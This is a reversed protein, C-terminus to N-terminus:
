FAKQDGFMIQIPMPIAAGIFNDIPSHMLNLWNKSFLNQELIDETDIFTLQSMLFLLAHIPRHYLQNKIVSQIRKGFKSFMILGLDNMYQEFKSQPKDYNIFANTIMTSIEKERRQMFQSLTEQTTGKKKAREYEAPVEDMSLQYETCRAVFDSYQTAIFMFDYAPTGEMMFVTKFTNKVSPPLKQAIKNHKLWKNVRGISELEDSQMDEIISQYMGKEMLPKVINNELKRRISPIQSTEEATVTGLRTKFLIRDLVKRNEIYDRIAQANAITTKIVKIPNRHNMISFMLNSVINGVLVGPIKLVIAQKRAYAITKMIMEAIAIGRKILYGTHKKVKENDLLTYNSVGFYDQLWDERIYLDNTKAYEKFNEPIVKWSERLYKNPSNKEIKVFKHGQMDMNPAFKMNKNMYDKTFELLIKNADTGYIQRTVSGFMRSLITLGREDLGLHQRKIDRALTQRYDTPGATKDNYIPSFSSYQKILKNMDDFTFEKGNKSAAIVEKRLNVLQDDAKKRMMRWRKLAERKRADDDRQLGNKIDLEDEESFAFQMLTKGMAHHGQVSVTNGDRRNPIGFRTYVHADKSNVIGDATLTMKDDYGQKKMAEPDTADPVAIVSEISPDTMTKTYGKMVNVAEMFPTVVIKGSDSVDKYGQKSEDVFEKHMKLFQEIGKTPLTATVDLFEQSTNDLAYLTILKDLQAIEADTLNLSHDWGRGEAINRANLNLLPNGISHVMHYATSIASYQLWSYDRPLLKQKFTDLIQNIGQKRLNSDKLFNVVEGLNQGDYLSQADTYLFANALATNEYDNLPRGFADQLVKMATAEQNKSIKDVMRLRMSLAEFISTGEDPGMFDRYTSMWLGQQSVRTLGRMIMRMEKRAEGSTVVRKALKGLEKTIEWKTANTPINVHPMHEYAKQKYEAEKQTDNNIQAKKMKEIYEDRKIEHFNFMKHLYGHIKENGSKIIEDTVSLFTEFHKMPQAFLSNVAKHNATHLQRHLRDFEDLLSVTKGTSDGKLVKYTRTFVESFKKKSFIVDYMGKLIAILRDVLNANPSMTPQNIVVKALKARLNENTAVFSCFENLSALTKPDQEVFIYDHFARAHREYYPRLSEDFTGDAPMFDKWTIVKKAEEQIVLLKRIQSNFGFVGRHTFAFENGAHLVEHAYIEAPALLSLVCLKTKSDLLRTASKDDMVLQIHRKGPNYQGAAWRGNDAIDLVTGRIREPAISRVLEKLRAVHKDSCLKNGLSAALNQVYDVINAREEPDDLAKHYINNLGGNTQYSSPSSGQVRAERALERNLRRIEGGYRSELERLKKENKGQQTNINNIEDFFNDFNKDFAIKPNYRKIVKFKQEYEESLFPDDALVEIFAPINDINTNIVNNIRMSRNVFSAVLESDTSALHSGKITSADLNSIAWTRGYFAARDRSLKKIMDKTGMISKEETSRIKKYGERFDKLTVPLPDVDGNSLRFYEKILDNGKSDKMTDLYFHYRKVEQATVSKNRYNEAKKMFEDFHTCMDLFVNHDRNVEFLCRNYYNAVENAKFASTVLADFIGNIGLHGYQDLVKALISGDLCHIPIVAGARVPYTPMLENGYAYTGQVPEGNRTYYNTGMNITDRNKDFKTLTMYGTQEDTLKDLRMINQVYTDDALSITPLFEHLEKKLQEIEKTTIKRNASDAEAMLKDLKHRYIKIFADAMTNSMNIMLENVEVYPQFMSQLAEGALKGYTNGILESFCDQLTLPKSGKLGSELDLEIAAYPRTQLAKMFTVGDKVVFHNAISTMGNNIAEIKKLAKERDKGVVGLSDLYKEYDGKYKNQLITYAHIYEKMVMTTLNDSISDIGASYGFVMVAPKMLLRFASGITGDDNKRPLADGFLQFTYDLFETKDVKQLIGKENKVSFTNLRAYEHEPDLLKTIEDSVEAAVTRYIDQFSELKKIEHIPMVSNITTANVEQIGVKSLFDKKDHIIESFPMQLMKIAYGSTTSDDEAILTTDFAKGHSAQRKLLHTIANLAQPISELGINELPALETPNDKILEKVASSFADGPRSIIYSRVKELQGYTLKKMAEAFENTKQSSGLADFAQAIAFNEQAVLEKWKQKDELSDSEALSPDYVYHMGEAMLTFRILKMSQPNMENCEVYLRGNSAWFQKFRIGENNYSYVDKGNSDKVLGGKSWKIATNKGSNTKGAIYTKQKAIGERLAKIERDITLNVGKVAEREDHSLLDLESEPTYGMTAKLAEWGSIKKGDVEIEQELFDTIDTDFRWVVDAQKQMVERRFPSVKTLESSHKVYVDKNEDTYNIRSNDWVADNNYASNLNKFQILGNQKRVKKEPNSDDITGLYIMQERRIVHRNKEAVVLTNIFPARLIDAVHEDSPKFGGLKYLGLAEGYDVAFCGLSSVLRSYVGYNSTEKNEVIGMNALIRMGIANVLISRPIGHKAVAERLNKLRKATLQTEDTFGFLRALQESTLVGSSFYGLIDSETLYQKLSYDVLTLTFDNFTTKPHGSDNFEVDYLLRFAVDKALISENVEKRGTEKNTFTGQRRFYHFNDANAEFKVKNAAEHIEDLVTHDGRQQNAYLTYDYALYSGAEDNGMKIQNTLDFPIETKIYTTINGKRQPTEVISGITAAVRKNNVVSETGKKSTDTKADLTDKHIQERSLEPLIEDLEKNLTKKGSTIRMAENYEDESIFSYDSENLFTFEAEENYSTGQNNNSTPQTVTDGFVETQIRKAVFNLHCPEPACWCGLIIKKLKPNSAKLAKMDAIFTDVKALWDKDSWCNDIAEERSMSRMEFPNGLNHKNRTDGNRGGYVYYTDNTVWDTKKGYGANRISVVQANPGSQNSFYTRVYDLAAPFEKQWFADVKPNNHAFPTTGTAILAAKAKPNEDFSARILDRMLAVNTEKNTGKTGVFKKGASWPKGYTEADFTGSKLTQYAHEVTLYPHNKYTFPREALNSFQANEGTGYWVNLPQAQSRQSPTQPPRSDSAPPNTPTQGGQGNQSSQSAGSPTNLADMVDPEAMEAPAKSKDNAKYAEQLQKGVALAKEVFKKNFEYIKIDDETNLKSLDIENFTNNIDDLLRNINMERFSANARDHVFDLIAVNVHTTISSACKLNNEVANNKDNGPFNFHLDAIFNNLSKHGVYEKGTNENAFYFDESLKNLKAVIDSGLALEEKTLQQTKAKAILDQVYKIHNFYKQRFASPSGIQLEAYVESAPIFLPHNMVFASQSLDVQSAQSAEGSATSDSGSPTTSSNGNGGRGTSGSGDERSIRAYAKFAKAEETDKGEMFDLRGQLLTSAQSIRKAIDDYYSQANGEPNTKLDQLAEYIRKTQEEAFETAYTKATLNNPVFFEYLKEAIEDANEGFLKRVMEPDTDANSAIVDLTSGKEGKKALGKKLYKKLEKAREKGLHEVLSNYDIKGYEGNALMVDPISDYSDLAFGYAYKYEKDYRSQLEKIAAVISGRRINKAITEFNDSSLRDALLKASKVIREISAKVAPTEKSTLLKHISDSLLYSLQAHGIKKDKFTKHKLINNAITGYLTTHRIDTDKGYDYSQDLSGTKSSVKANELKSIREDITRIVSPLNPDNKNSFKLNEKLEKLWAIDTSRKIQKTFNDETESVSEETSTGTEQNQNSTPTAQPKPTPKPETQNKLETLRDQVAIIKAQTEELLDKSHGKLVGDDYKKQLSKLQAELITRRTIRKISDTFRKFSGKFGKDDNARTNPSSEFYDIKKQTERIAKDLRDRLAIDEKNNTDIVSQFTRRFQKLTTNYNRQKIAKQRLTENTDIGDEFNDQPYLKEIEELTPTMSKVFPDHNAKRLESNQQITDRMSVIKDITALAQEKAGENKWGNVKERLADVSEPKQTFAYHLNQLEQNYKATEKGKAENRILYTLSSALDETNFDKGNFKSQDRAQTQLSLAANDFRRQLSDAMGWPAMKRPHDTENETVKLAETILEKPIGQKELEKYGQEIDRLDKIANKFIAYVGKEDEYSGNALNTRNVVFPANRHMWSTAAHRENTAALKEAAEMLTQAKYYQDSYIRFLGNLNDIINTQYKTKSEPTLSETKLRNLSDQIRDRYTYYGAGGSRVNANVSEVTEKIYKEDLGLDKGIKKLNEEEQAYQNEDLKMGEAYLKNSNLNSGYVLDGYLENLSRGLKEEIEDNSLGQDKYYQAAALDWQTAEKLAADYATRSFATDPDQIQSRINEASTHATEPSIQGKSIDAIKESFSTGSLNALLSESANTDADTDMYTKSDNYAKRDAIDQEIAKRIKGTGLRSIGTLGAGMGFGAVGGGIAQKVVEPTTALELRSLRNPGEKQSHYADITSEWGEQPIESLAALGGAQLSNKGELIKSPKGFMKQGLKTRGFLRGLFVRDLGAEYTAAGLYEGFTQLTEDWSMEKGNNKKFNELTDLTNSLATYAGQGLVSAALGLMAGGATGAGPVASGVAAGIAIGVGTQGASQGILEPMMGIYNALFGLANKASAFYNGKGWEKQMSEYFKDAEKNVENYIQARSGYDGTALEKTLRNSIHQWGKVDFVKEVGHEKAWDSSIFKNLEDVFSKQGLKVAYAFKDYTQSFINNHEKYNNIAQLPTAFTNTSTIDQQEYFNELRQRNKKTNISKYFDFSSNRYPNLAADLVVSRGTQPNIADILVRNFDDKAGNVKYMFPIREQTPADYLKNKDFKEGKYNPDLLSRKMEQFHYRKVNTFLANQQDETLGDFSNLGYLKLVYAPQRYAKYASKLANAREDVADFHNFTSLRYDFIEGTEADVAKGSDADSKEDFIMFGKRYGDMRAQKDLKRDQVGELLVDATRATNLLKQMYPSVLGKELILDSPSVLSNIAYQQATAFAKDDLQM